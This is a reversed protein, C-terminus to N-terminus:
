NSLSLPIAIHFRAGAIRSSAREHRRRIAWRALLRTKTSKYGDGGSGGGGSNSTQGGDDMEREGEIKGASAKAVAARVPLPLSLSRCRDKSRMTPHLPRHSPPNKGGQATGGGPSIRASKLLWRGGEIGVIDHISFWPTLFFISFRHKSKSCNAM